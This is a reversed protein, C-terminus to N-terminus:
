FKDKLYNYPELLACPGDRHICIKKEYIRKSTNKCLQKYNCYVVLRKKTTPKM